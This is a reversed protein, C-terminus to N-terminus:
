LISAEQCRAPADFWEQPVYLERDICTCGQESAYALALFVGIQQNERRGATGSSQRAVGASKTGKKLFGTEDVILIGSPQGLHDVVYRRLQDRVEEADWDAEDLLRQIGRPHREGSAEALQWGNKRETRSLLRALYRRSRARTESRGFCPAIRRYADELPAGRDNTISSM